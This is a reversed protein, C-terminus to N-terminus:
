KAEAPIPGVNDAWQEDFLEDPQSDAQDLIRGGYNRQRNNFSAIAALMDAECFDPWLTDSFYLEAYAMQWLLFNSIRCEGATRICLDLPPLDALSMQANIRQEDIQEPALEGRQVQEALMRAARAIDNQGGYDVAIVLTTDSNGRTLQESYEMQKLLSASFRSREGIFRVRIGDSHLKKIEKKLYASFLTMLATVEARPRQWNERSFAFLTLVEVGQDRCLKVVDRVVEVGARHGHSASKGRRSAWRGNGDMIIALHKLVGESPPHQADIKDLMESTM